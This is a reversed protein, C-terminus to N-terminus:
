LSNLLEQMSWVGSGVYPYDSPSQVLGARVPNNVIYRAIWRADDSYRLIREYYGKQWLRGGNKLAHAAGSHQKARAAFRRLDSDFSTGEVLLHLHDPMFCYALLSFQEHTASRQIQLLASRVADESTFVTRRNLVCFTLSYRGVGVYSV